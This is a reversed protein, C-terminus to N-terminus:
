PGADNGPRAPHGTSQILRSFNGSVARAVEHEECGRIAAISSVVDLLDAPQIPRNQWRFFPGDTELLVHDLPLWEVLARSEQIGLMAVNISFLHGDGIALEAQEKTGMFFHFIASHGPHARLEEIVDSEAGRSHVSLIKSAPLSSLVWQFLDLQEGLGPTSGFHASASKALEADVGIESIWSTTDVQRLFIDKEYPVYISGACEPHFGLGFDIGQRPESLDHTLARYESPRSSAVIIRVNAARARGLVEERDAYLNWHCHTDALGDNGIANVKRGSTLLFLL